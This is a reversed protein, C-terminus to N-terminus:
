LKAIHNVKIGSEIFLTQLNVRINYIHNNITFQHIKNYQM